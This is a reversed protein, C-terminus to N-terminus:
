GDLLEELRAIRGPDCLQSRRATALTLRGLAQYDALLEPAQTSIAETHRAITGTDGRAIPGTLAQATGKERINEVTGEILPLLAVLAAEAEIGAADMLRLSFDVVGTLSNSVIAAAAHYLPKQSAQIVFYGNGTEELWEGLERTAEAEGEISFVATRLKDAGSLGDAFSQLPHLSAIRAGAQKFPLLVESSAAGSMHFILKGEMGGEVALKRSIEAITDDPVTVAIWDSEQILSTADTYVRGSRGVLSAAKKASEQTYSYYGVWAGHQAAYLGFASGLRGAGIIGLKM